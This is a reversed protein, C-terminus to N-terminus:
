LASMGELDYALFLTRKKKNAEVNHSGRHMCTPTEKVQWKNNWAPFTAKRPQPFTKSINLRWAKLIGLLTHTGHLLFTGLKIQDSVKTANTLLGGEGNGTVTDIDSDLYPCFAWFFGKCIPSKYHGDIPLFANQSAHTKQQTVVTPWQSLIAAPSVWHALHLERLVDM